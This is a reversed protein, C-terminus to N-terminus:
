CNPKVVWPSLPHDNNSLSTSKRQPNSFSSVEKSGKRFFVKQFLKLFVDVDPEHSLDIVAGFVDLPDGIRLNGGANNDVPPTGTLGWRFHGRLFQLSNRLLSSFLDLMESMDSMIESMNVTSNCHFECAKLRNWGHFKFWECIIQLKECLKGYNLQIWCQSRFM